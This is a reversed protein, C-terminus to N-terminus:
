LGKEIIDATQKFTSGEDNMKALTDDCGHPTPNHHPLGAWRVVCEPLYNASSNQWSLSIETGAEYYRGNEEKVIGEAKAMECLVGLCCFSGVKTRYLKGKSQKLGGHRLLAVWDTKINQYMKM